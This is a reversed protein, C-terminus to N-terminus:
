NADIDARLAPKARKQITILNGQLDLIHNKSDQDYSVVVQDLV